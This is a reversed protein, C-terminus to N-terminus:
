AATAPTSARTPFDLTSAPVGGTGSCAISLVLSSMSRAFRLAFSARAHHRLSALLGWRLRLLGGRLAVGLRLRGLLDLRLDLLGALLEAVRHRRDGLLGVDLLLRLGLGSLGLPLCARLDGAGDLLRLRLPVLEGGLGLLCARFRRALRGLLGRLGDLLVGHGGRDRPAEHGAEEEAPEDAATSGFVHLSTM